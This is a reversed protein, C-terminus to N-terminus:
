VALELGIYVLDYEVPHHPLIIECVIGLGMESLQCIGPKIPYQLLWWPSLRDM